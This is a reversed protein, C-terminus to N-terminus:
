VGKRTLPDNRPIRLLPEVADHNNFHPNVRVGPPPARVGL